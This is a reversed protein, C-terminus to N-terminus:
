HFIKEEQLLDIVKDVTENQFDLYEEIEYMISLIIDIRDELYNNKFNNRIYNLVYEKENEM